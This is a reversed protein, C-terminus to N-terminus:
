RPASTRIYGCLSVSNQDGGRCPHPNKTNMNRIGTAEAVGPPQAYGFGGSRALAVGDYM